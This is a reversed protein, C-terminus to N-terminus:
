HAWFPSHEHCTVSQAPLAALPSYVPPLTLGRLFTLCWTRTSATSKATPVLRSVDCSGTLTTSPRPDQVPLIPSTNGLPESCPPPFAVFSGSALGRNGTFEEKSKPSYLLLTCVHPRRHAASLLSELRNESCKLQCRSYRLSRTTGPASPGRSTPASAHGRAGAAPNPVSSGQKCM